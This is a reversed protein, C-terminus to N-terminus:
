QRGQGLGLGKAFFCGGVICPKMFIGLAFSPEPAHELLAGLEMAGRPPPLRNWM